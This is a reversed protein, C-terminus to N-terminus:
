HEVSKGSSGKAISEPFVCVKLPFTRHQNLLNKNQSGIFQKKPKLYKYIVPDLLSLDRASLAVYLWFSLLLFLLTKLNQTKPQRSQKVVLM